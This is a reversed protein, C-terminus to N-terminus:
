GADIMENVPEELKERSPHPKIALKAKWDAVVYPVCLVNKDEAINESSKFTLKGNHYIHNNFDTCLNASKLLCDKLLGNVTARGKFDDAILPAYVYLGLEARTFAVYMLNLNDLLSRKKEEKYDQDFASDAMISSYRVPMYGMGKVTDVWLMPGFMAPHDTEWQFYPIFVYKFQLGKSMHISMLQVAETDEPMQISLKHKVAQYYELFAEPDNRERGMYDLVMSQFTELYAAQSPVNLEFLEIIKECADYLSLFNLQNFNRAIGEPLIHLASEGAVSALLNYDVSEGKLLKWDHYIQGLILKEKPTRILQLMGTIIRIAPSADVLLSENSLVPIQVENLVSAIQQAETNKRVLIAIDKLSVGYGRLLRIKEIVESMAQEKWQGELFEIRVEGIQSSTVVQECGRYAQEIAPEQHLRGLEQGLYNFVENNFTVVQKASRFNKALNEIKVRNAGLDQEVKENLLTLDGGRWRYISQKVDGVVIGSKGNDLSEQLLPKLNQWQLSSTDQFEDILFYDYYTGMKEYIFPTDSDAIIAHLLRSADSLLLVNGESKFERLKRALDAILGFSYFQSLLLEYSLAASYGSDRIEIIEKLLPILTSEAIREIDFAHGSKKDAWNKAEMFENRARKGLIENDLHRPETANAIKTLLNYVGGSYKFDSAQWGRSEIIGLAKDARNKIEELFSEQNSKLAQQIHKFYTPEKILNEVQDEILRFDERLIEQAFARLTQRVDWAKDKHLNEKAFDIVWKTLSTNTGVEAVVGDVVKELVIDQDLELKYGGGIGLEKTFSRIVRQFFADITCISFENYNHLICSLVTASKQKFEGDSISLERKLEEALSDSEGKAFKKLYSLIRDKMEQTAKNTFTIALIKKFLFDDGSLAIKLYEKALTRTKGSGASSKYIKFSPTM